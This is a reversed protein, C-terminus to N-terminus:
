AVARGCYDDRRNVDTGRVGVANAPAEGGNVANMPGGESSV